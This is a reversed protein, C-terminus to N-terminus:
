ADRRAYLTETMRAGQSRHSHTHRFPVHILPSSALPLERPSVGILVDESVANVPLRASTIPPVLPIPSAM